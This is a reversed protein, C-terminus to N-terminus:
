GAAVLIDCHRGRFAARTSDRMRIGRGTVDLGSRFVPRQGPAATQRRGSARDASPTKNDVAKHIRDAGTFEGARKAAKEARKEKLSKGPKKKAERSQTDRGKSM